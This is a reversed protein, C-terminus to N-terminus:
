EDVTRTLLKAHIRIRTWFPDVPAFCSESTEPPRVEFVYSVDGITLTITDGSEPDIPGDGFDLDNPDAIFAAQNIRTSISGDPSALWAASSTLTLAVDVQDDGRAYVASVRGLTTEVARAVASV